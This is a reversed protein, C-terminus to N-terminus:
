EEEKKYEQKPDDLIYLRNNKIQSLIDKIKFRHTIWAYPEGQYDCENVFISVETIKTIKSYNFWHYTNGQSTWGKSLHALWKGVKIKKKIENLEREEQAKAIDYEIQSIQADAKYLENLVKTDILPDLADIIDQQHDFIAKMLILRSWQGKDELGWTGCSGHNLTIGLNTIYLSFTSGFDWDRDRNPDQNVFYIEKSVKWKFGEREPYDHDQINVLELDRLPLLPAPGLNLDNLISYLKETVAKRQFFWQDRLDKIRARLNDLRELENGM